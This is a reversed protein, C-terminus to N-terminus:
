DRYHGPDVVGSDVYPNRVPHSTDWRPLDRGPIGNGTTSSGERGGDHEGERTDDSTPKPCDGGDCADDNPEDAPTTDPEEGDEDKPPNEPDGAPIPASPTVPEKKEKQIKELERYAYYAAGLIGAGIGAIRDHSIITVVGGITVFGEAGAKFTREIQENTSPGRTPADGGRNEDEPRGGGEYPETPRIGSLFTEGGIGQQALDGLPTKLMGFVEGNDEFSKQYDNPMDIKSGHRENLIAGISPNLQAILPSILDAAENGLFSTQDYTALMPSLLGKAVGDRQIAGMLQHSFQSASKGTIEELLAGYKTAMELVLTPNTEYAITHSSLREIAQLDNSQALEVIKKNLDAEDAFAIGTVMQAVIFVATIAINSIFRAM